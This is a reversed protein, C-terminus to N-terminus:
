CSSFDFLTQSEVVGELLKIFRDIEEITNYKSLGIRLSGHIYDAPCGIAKLVPSISSSKSHCASGTSVFVNKSSLMRHLIEGEVSHFSFNINTCVRNDLHNPGNLFVEFKNTIQNLLYKQLKKIYYLDTDNFCEVAKGFAAISPVNETGSRLGMEQGGGSM